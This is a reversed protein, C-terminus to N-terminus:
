LSVLIRQHASPEHHRISSTVRRAPARASDLSMRWANECWRAAFGTVDRLEVQRREVLSNHYDVFCSRAAPDPALIHSAGPQHYTALLDTVLSAWGALVRESVAEPEGDIRQPAAHSHCLLVRPLFGSASLSDEGLMSAIAASTKAGFSGFLALSGVM